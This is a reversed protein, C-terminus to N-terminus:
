RTLLVAPKLPQGGLLVLDIARTNALHAAPNSTLVVLDARKGVEISGIEAELGLAVAGNYTAMKLVELTPIGAEALLELEEHFSVGPIVWPNPFDTGVTLHVGGEYLRYTLEPVRPWVSRGRDYDEATWDGTFTTRQWIERVIAPM